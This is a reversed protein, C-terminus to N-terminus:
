ARWHGGSVQRSKAPIQTLATGDFRGDRQMLDGHSSNGRAGVAGPGSKPPHIKEVVM